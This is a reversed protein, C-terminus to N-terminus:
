FVGANEWNPNMCIKQAYYREQLEISSTQEEMDTSVRCYAAVHIHRLQIPRDDQTSAIEIINGM